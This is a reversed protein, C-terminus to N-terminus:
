FYGLLNTPSEPESAPTVVKKDGQVQNLTAYNPLRCPDSYNFGESSTPVGARIQIIRTTPFSM